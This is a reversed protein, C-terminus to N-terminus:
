TIKRNKGLLTAIMADGTVNVVTRFMDLPRDIAIILALGEAPIGISNLIVILMVMGAGPVGASGISAMVAMILVTLMQSLSLDIGMVQAIFISAIAQYLSTGDMNITVGLPLVFSTIERDIGLEKEVQEMTVPLTAASSSTSFAVLQAPFIAKYFQRFSVKVFIRLISPYILIIIIFIGVLVTLFYLGLSVFLQIGEAADKGIVDVILGAMLALVGIPAILMIFDVIKLIVENLGVIFKKVPESFQENISILALGFLVAFVIIQLMSTNSSAADVINEPVMDVLFQLPSRHGLNQVNKEDISISQGYKAMMESRKGESFYDGPRILNVLGLGICVAIVTTVIYLVFTQVGLTSFKKINSLGAIGSVLSTFILPIAILKLLNLFITGFPKVYDIIFGGSNTIVAIIGVFIGIALGALIKVYLPIRKIM